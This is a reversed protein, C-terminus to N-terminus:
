NPAHEKLYMEIDAAKTEVDKMLSARNDETAKCYQILSEGLKVLLLPSKLETPTWTKGYGRPTAFEITVGDLGTAEEKPIRTRMLMENWIECLRSAVAKSIPVTTITVNVPGKKGDNSNEPMSYWINTDAETYTLFFHKAKSFESVGDEGHLQLSSEGSFTPRTEMQAFFFPKAKILSHLVNTYRVRWDNPYPDVPVLHDPEHSVFEVQIKAKHETNPFYGDQGGAMQATFNAIITLCCCRLFLHHTRNM